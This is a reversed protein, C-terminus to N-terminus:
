TPFPIYIGWPQAVGARRHAVLVPPPIRGVKRTQPVGVAAAVRLAHRVEHTSSSVCPIHNEVTRNTATKTCKHDTVGMNTLLTNAKRTLTM